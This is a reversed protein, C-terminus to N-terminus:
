TERDDDNYDGDDSALVDGAIEMSVEENLM